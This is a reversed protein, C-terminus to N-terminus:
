LKGRFISWFTQAQYAATKAKAIQYNEFEYITKNVHTLVLGRFRKISISKRKSM